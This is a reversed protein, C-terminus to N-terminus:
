ENRYLAELEKMATKKDHTWWKSNIIREQKETNFRYKIIKAPVGVVVAFDPVDKLVVSGAGIVAGNGIKVGQKIFSNAGIWVDNGITTPKLKFIDMKEFGNGLSPSTSLSTIDHEGLGIYCGPGISCYNKIVANNILSYPAFYNYKGIEANEYIICGKSFHNSRGYKGWINNRFTLIRFIRNIIM